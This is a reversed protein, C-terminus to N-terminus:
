GCVACAGSPLCPQQWWWWWSSSWLRQRPRTSCHRTCDGTGHRGGSLVATAAAPQRRGPRQHALRCCACCYCCDRLVAMPPSPAPVDGVLCAQVGQEREGTPTPNSPIGRGALADSLLSVAAAQQQELAADLPTKGAQCHHLYPTQPPAVTLLRGALSAWLWVVVACACRTTGSHTQERGFCTVCSARTARGRLWTCRRAGRRHTNAHRLPLPLPAICQIAPHTCAHSLWTTHRLRVDWRTLSTPHRGERLCNGRSLKTARPQLSTCRLGAMATTHSSCCCCCCCCLLLLPRRDDTTAPRTGVAHRVPIVRSASRELSRPAHQASTGGLGTHTCSRTDWCM